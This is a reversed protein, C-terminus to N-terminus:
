VSKKGRSTAIGRVGILSAIIDALLTGPEGVEPQQFTNATRPVRPPSTHQPTLARPPLPSKVSLPLKPTPPVPLEKKKQLDAMVIPIADNMLEEKYSRKPLSPAIIGEYEGGSEIRTQQASATECPSITKIACFKAMPCGECLAVARTALPTVARLNRSILREKM